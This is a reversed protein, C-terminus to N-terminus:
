LKRDFAKIREDVRSEDSTRVRMLYDTSVAERRFHLWPLMVQHCLTCTCSTRKALVEPSNLITRYM